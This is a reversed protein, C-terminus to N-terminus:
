CLLLLSNCDGSLFKKDSCGSEAFDGGILHNLEHVGFETKVRATSALESAGRPVRAFAINQDRICIM